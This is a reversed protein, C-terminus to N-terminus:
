QVRTGYLGDFLRFNIIARQKRGIAFSETLVDGVHRISGFAVNFIFYAQDKILIIRCFGGISGLEREKLSKMKM